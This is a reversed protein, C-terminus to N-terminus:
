EYGWFEEEYMNKSNDIKDNENFIVEYKENKSENESEADRKKKQSYTYAMFGGGLIASAFIGSAIHTKSINEAFGKKTDEKSKDKSKDKSEGRAEDNFTDNEEPIAESIVNKKSGSASLDENQTNQEFAPNSKLESKTESSSFLSIIKNGAEQFINHKSIEPSRKFTENTFEAEKNQVNVFDEEVNNQSEEIHDKDMINKFEAKEIQSSRHSAYSDNKDNETDTNVSKMKTDSNEKAEYIEDYESQNEIAASKTGYSDFDYANINTNSDSKNDILSPKLINGNKTAGTLEVNTKHKTIEEKSHDDIKDCSRIDRIHQCNTLHRHQKGNECSSWETWNGCNECDKAEHLSNDSICYRVIFNNKCESWNNWRKCKNIIGLGKTIPLYIFLLFFISVIYTKMKIGNKAYM